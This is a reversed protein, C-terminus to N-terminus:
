PLPKRRARAVLAFSGGHPHLRATKRTEAQWRLIAEDLASFATAESDEGCILRHPGLTWNDGARTVASQNSPFARPERGKRAPARGGEISLDIEGLTFGTAGIAFDLDLSKLEELELRLRGEDWSALEALRNDAIMFARREAESLHDLM